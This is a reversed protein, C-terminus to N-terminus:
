TDPGPHSSPDARIPPCPPVPPHPHEIPGSVPTPCHSLNFKSGSGRLVEWCYLCLSTKLARFEASVHEQM